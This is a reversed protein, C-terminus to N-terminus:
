RWARPRRGPVIRRGTRDASPCPPRAREGLLFIGGTQFDTLAGVVSETSGGEGLSPWPPLQSFLMFFPTPASRPGSKTRVSPPPAQHLGLPPGAAERPDNVLGASIPTM